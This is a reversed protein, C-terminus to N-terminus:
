FGTQNIIMQGETPARYCDYIPGQLYRVSPRMTPVVATVDPIFYSLVSSHRSQEPADQVFRDYGLNVIIGM